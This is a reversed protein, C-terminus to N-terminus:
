ASQYQLLRLAVMTAGPGNNIASRSQPNSTVTVGIEWFYGDSGSHLALIEYGNTVPRGSLTKWANDLLATNFFTKTAAPSAQVLINIERDYPGNGQDYNRWGTRSSAQPILLADLVNNPVMGPPTIPSFYRAANMSAMNLPRNHPKGGTPLGVLTGVVMVVLVITGVIWKSKKTKLITM